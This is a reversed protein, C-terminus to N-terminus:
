SVFVVDDAIIDETDTEDLILKETAWEAVQEMEEVAAELEALGIVELDSTELGDIITNIDSM